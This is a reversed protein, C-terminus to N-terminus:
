SKANGLEEIKAVLENAKASLMYLIAKMSGTRIFRQIEMALVEYHTPVRLCLVHSGHILTESRDAPCCDSLLITPIRACAKFIPQLAPSEPCENCAIVICQVDKVQLANVLRNLDDSNSVTFGAATLQQTLSAVLKGDPCVTIITNSM